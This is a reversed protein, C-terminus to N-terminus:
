PRTNTIAKKVEDVVKWVGDKKKEKDFLKGCEVCMLYQGINIKTEHECM